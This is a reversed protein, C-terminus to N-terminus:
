TSRNLFWRDHFRRYLDLVTIAGVPPESRDFSKWGGARAFNGVFGESTSERLTEIANAYALDRDGIAALSAAFFTDWDFLVYGGWGVSWIRSVPSIVREQEPEFITDWGIVTQIADATASQVGNRANSAIYLAHQREIISQIEQLTRRKGTSIAAPREFAACFYSGSVPVDTSLNDTGILFIPLDGSKGHTNIRNGLKTVSGERQWLFSVSFVIAPSVTGPHESTLPTVLLVLDKGDHASQVRMNHGRWSIRLDTYSGDYAHPGPVVQEAGPEQRGILARSLFSESALTTRHKIGIQIALGEPLFVQTAVSNVDWTNWGQSLHRQVAAYGDSRPILRPPQGHM